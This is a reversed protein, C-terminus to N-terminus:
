PHQPRAPVVRIPPTPRTRGIRWAAEVETELAPWGTMVRHPSAHLVTLGNASMRSHRRQTREWGERDGHHEWSDVEFALAADPWYADPRALFTGDPLVLDPNFLPRPIRMALLRRRAVAEAASRVGDSYEQLAARLLASGKRPGEALERYLDAVHVKPTRLCDTVWTRVQGLDRSSRCADALARVPEAVPFGGRRLSGPMRLTRLAVIGPVSRRRRDHPILIPTPGRYPRTLEHLVLAPVGTLLAGDGGYLLAAQWHHVDSLPGTFAAYTGPLLRQWPGGHRTRWDLGDRTLGAELAQRRTIISHQAALIADLEGGTKKTKM